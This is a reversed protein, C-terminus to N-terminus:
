ETQLHRKHHEVHEGTQPAPGDPEVSDARVLGARCVRPDEVGEVPVNRSVGRGSASYVCCVGDEPGHLSHTKKQAQTGEWKM